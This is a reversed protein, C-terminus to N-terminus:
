LEFRLWLAESDYCIMPLNPANGWLDKIILFEIWAAVDRTVVPICGIPGTGLDEVWNSELLETVKSICRFLGVNWRAWSWM